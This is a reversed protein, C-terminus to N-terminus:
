SSGSTEMKLTSNALVPLVFTVTRKLLQYDSIQNLFKVYKIYYSSVNGHECSRLPESKLFYKSLFQPFSRFMDSCVNKTFSGGTEPIIYLIVTFTVLYTANSTVFSLSVHQVFEL